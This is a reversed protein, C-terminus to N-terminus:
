ARDSKGEKLPKGTVRRLEKLFDKADKGHYKWMPDNPLGVSSQVPTKDKETMPIEFVGQAEGTTAFVRSRASPALFLAYAKGNMMKKFWPTRVEAVSGDEFSVRGGPLSVTIVDGEQLRGKYVYMVRVKYDITASKGDPSLATVNDQPIGIIVASSSGALGALDSFAGIKQPGQDGIYRGTQKARERLPRIDTGSGQQPVAQRAVGSLRRSASIKAMGLGLGLGAAVVSAVLLVNMLARKRM